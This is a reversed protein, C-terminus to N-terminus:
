RPASARRIGPGTPGPSVNLGPPLPVPRVATKRLRLQDGVSAPGHVRLRCACSACPWLPQSALCTAWRPCPRQCARAAGPWACKRRAFTSALWALSLATSGRPRSGPSGHSRSHTSSRGRPRSLSGQHGQAHALLGAPSTHGPPCARSAPSVWVPAQPGSHPGSRPAPSGACPSPLRLQPAQCGIPQCSVWSTTMPASIVLVPWGHRAGSLGCVVGPWAGNTLPMPMVGHRDWRSLGHSASSDDTLIRDVQSALGRPRSHVPGCRGRISRKAWRWHSTPSLVPDVGGRPALPAHPPWARPVRQPGSWPCM